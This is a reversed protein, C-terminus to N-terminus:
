TKNARHYKIHESNNPFLMLNEIRDDDRIENDHHVVEEKTLYRNMKKEMILRSRKVYNHCNRYPHSLFYILIYGNSTTQGIKYRPVDKGRKGTMRKSQEPRKKGKKACSQCRGQGKIATSKCVENNCDKEKCYYKKM